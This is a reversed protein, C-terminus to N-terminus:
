IKEHKGKERREPLNQRGNKLHAAVSRLKIKVEAGIQGGLFARGRM